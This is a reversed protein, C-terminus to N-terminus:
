EVKFRYMGRTGLNTVTLELDGDTGPVQDYLVSWNVIADDPDNTSWLVGYLRNTLTDHLTIRGDPGQVVEGIMAFRSLRNTPNSNGIFEEWTLQEDQDPDLYATSDNTSLGYQALWWHPVGNSTTFPDFAVQLMRPQSMVVTLPNDNTQGSALDGSWGAFYYYDGSSANLVKQTGYAFWGNTWDVSGVGWVEVSLQYNTEWLWTITSNDDMYFVPTGTTTGSAPVSGTGVWGKSVFQTSGETAPNALLSCSLPLGRVFGNTGVPPSSAGWESIVTLQPPETDVFTAYARMANLGELTFSSHAMVVVGNTRAALVPDAHAYNNSLIIFGASDSTVRQGSNDLVSGAINEQFGNANEWVVLYESGYSAVRPNDQDNEGTGVLIDSADIKEGSQNVRSGYISYADPDLRRDEWVVFYNTGGWAVDPDSANTSSNSLPVGSADVVQGDESIRAGYIAYSINNRIDEWVVFFNTSGWCVRPDFQNNGASTVTIGLPDLVQGAENVRAAIIDSPYPPTPDRFDVWAVLFVSDGWAVDPTMQPAMNTCIPIGNTELVTGGDTVRAAYLDEWRYGGEADKERADEWAVLFNSSGWAVSPYDQKNSVTCIALGM